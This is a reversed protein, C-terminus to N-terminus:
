KDHDVSRPKRKLASKKITNLLNNMNNFSQANWDRIECLMHVSAENCRNRQTATKFDKRKSDFQIKGAQVRVVSWSPELAYLCESDDESVLTVIGAIDHKKLIASIEAMAEKLKPDVM